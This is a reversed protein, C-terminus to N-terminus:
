HVEAFFKRGLIGEPRFILVLVLLVFPIVEQYVSVLLRSGISEALGLIVGGIIAGQMTGLGGLAAVVFARGIFPQGFVPTITFITTAMAGAAGALAAALGFTLAYIHGINVGVLQAAERNLATAMITRGVKTRNIFLYFALTIAGALLGMGLRSYPIIVGALQLSQGAYAPRVARYDGSWLFLAVNVLFINLGFTLVLTVFVGSKVVLNIVYRQLVYGLIFLLLMAPLFSIFPDLGWLQFSWYAAYAGLMIFAGHAINIINMVGWVLSFGIGILAYLAGLLLGNVIIQPDV